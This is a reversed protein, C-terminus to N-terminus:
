IANQREQLILLYTKRFEEYRKENEKIDFSIDKYNKEIEKKHKKAIEIIKEDPKYFKLIYPVIIRGSFRWGTFGIAYVRLTKNDVEEIHFQTKIFRFKKLSSCGINSKEIDFAFIFPLENDFKFATDAYIKSRIRLIKEEDPNLDEFSISKICDIKLLKYKESNIDITKLYFLGNYVFVGIPFLKLINDKKEYMIRIAKEEIIAKYIKSLIENDVKSFKENFDPVYKFASEIKERMNENFDSSLRSLLNRLIEFFPLTNSYKEPLFNFSTFFAFKEEENISIIDRFVRRNIRWEQSKRGRRKYKDEDIYKAEIYGSYELNNLYVSLLRRDSHLNKGNLIGIKTLYNQIDATKKWDNERLLYMIIEIYANIHKYGATM